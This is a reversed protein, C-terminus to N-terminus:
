VGDLFVLHAPHFPGPLQWKAAGSGIWVARTVASSCVLQGFGDTPSPCGEGLAEGLSSGGGTGQEGLGM